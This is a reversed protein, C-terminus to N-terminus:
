TTQKQKTNINTTLRASGDFNVNNYKQKVKQELKQKNTGKSIRSIQKNFSENKKAKREEKTENKHQKQGREINKQQQSDYSQQANNRYQKIHISM